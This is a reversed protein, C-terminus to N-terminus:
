ANIRGNFKTYRYAAKINPYAFAKFIILHVEERRETFINFAFTRYVKEATFYPRDYKLQAKTFAIAVVKFKFQSIKAM